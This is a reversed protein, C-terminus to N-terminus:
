FPIDSDMAPHVAPAKGQSSFDSDHSKEETFIEQINDLIYQYQSPSTVHNAEEATTLLTQPNFAEVFRPRRYTKGELTKFVEINFLIGIPKNLLETYQPIRENIIQGTQRDKRSVMTQTETLQKSRTAFMLKQLQNYGFIKEGTSKETYVTFTCRKEDSSEFIIEVGKTGNKSVIPKAQTIKGVYAGKENIFSDNMANKAVETMDLTYM